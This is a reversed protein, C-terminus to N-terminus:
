HRWKEKTKLLFVLVDSVSLLCCCVSLICMSMGLAWSSISSLSVMSVMPLNSSKEGQNIYCTRKPPIGKRWMRKGVACILLFSSCLWKFVSSLKNERGKSDNGVLLLRPIPDLIICPMLFIFSNSLTEQLFHFQPSATKHNENQNRMQSQRPLQIVSM